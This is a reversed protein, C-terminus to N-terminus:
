QAIDSDPESDVGISLLLCNQWYNGILVLPWIPELMYKRCKDSIIFLDANDKIM